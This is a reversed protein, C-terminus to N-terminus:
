QWPNHPRRRNLRPTRPRGIKLAFSFRRRTIVAPDDTIPTLTFRYIARVGLKSTDLAVFCIAGRAVGGTPLREGREFSRVYIRNAASARFTDRWLEVGPDRPLVLYVATGQAVHIAQQRLLSGPPDYPLVLYRRPDRGARRVFDEFTTRPLFRELAIYPNSEEHARLPLTMDIERADPEGVGEVGSFQV